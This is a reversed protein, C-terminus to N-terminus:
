VSGHRADAILREIARRAIEDLGEGENEQVHAIIQQRMRKEWFRRLHGAVQEVAYDTDPDAGFYASIDNAMDVLRVINM